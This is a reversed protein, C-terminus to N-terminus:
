THFVSRNRTKSENASKLAITFYNIFDRRSSASKAEVYNAIVSTDSRLLQDGLRRAINDRPLKDIMEILKLTFASLRNRFEDREFRKGSM